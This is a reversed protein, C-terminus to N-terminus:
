GRRKRQTALAACALLWAVPSSGRGEGGFSGRALACTGGGSPYIGCDPSFGQRPVYDCIQPEETPPYTACIGEIDDDALDRFSDNGTSYQTWMTAEPNLSHGLGLFHGAEHTIISQLDYGEPDVIPTTSLPQMGNIEMDVDYIDGTKKSFTVTTLALVDAGNMYPWEDDHFLIINANGDVQNYEHVKCAVTGFVHDVKISPVGGGPCSANQWVGFAKEAAATATALDVKRSAQYQMSYSVCYQPWWIPTGSPCNTIPDIECEKGCTTTRCYARATEATLAVSALAVLLAASRRRLSPFRAV